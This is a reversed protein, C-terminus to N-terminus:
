IKRKISSQYMQNNKQKKVIELKKTLQIGTYVCEPFNTLSTWQIKEIKIIHYHDEIIDGIKYFNNSFAYEKKLKRLEYFKDNQIANYLEGYTLKNM